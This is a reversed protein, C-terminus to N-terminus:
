QGFLWAPRRVFEQTLDAGILGAVGVSEARLEARVGHRGPYWASAAVVHGVLLGVLRVSSPVTKRNRNRATFPSAVAHRLRSPTGSCACPQFWTEQRLFSSMGYTVSEAITHEGYRSSLRKLYAKGGPGWKTPVGRWQQIGSSVAASAATAPGFVSSLYDHLRADDSTLATPALQAGGAPTVSEPPASADQATSVAVSALLLVVTLVFM